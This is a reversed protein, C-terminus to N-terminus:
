FRRVRSTKGPASATESTAEPIASRSGKAVKTEPLAVIAPKAEAVPVPDFAEGSDGPSMNISALEIVPAKDGEVKTDLVVKRIPTPKPKAEAVMALAASPHDASDAVSNSIAPKVTQAASSTRTTTDSLAAVMAATDYSTASTKAIESRSTAGTPASPNAVDLGGAMLISKIDGGLASSTGTFAGSNMRIRNEATSGSGASQCGALATVSLLALAVAFSRCPNM